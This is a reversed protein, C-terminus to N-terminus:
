GDVPNSEPVLEKAPVGAGCAEVFKYVDHNLGVEFSDAGTLVSAAVGIASSKPDGGARTV